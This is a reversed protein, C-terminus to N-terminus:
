VVYSGSPSEFDPLDLAIATYIRELYANPTYGMNYTQAWRVDPFGTDVDNDNYPALQEYSYYIDNIEKSCQM